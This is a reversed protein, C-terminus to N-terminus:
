ARSHAYWHSSKFHKSKDLSKRLASFRLVPLRDQMARVREEFQAFKKDGLHDAALCYLVSALTMDPTPIRSPIWEHNSRHPPRPAHDVGFTGLDHAILSDMLQAHFLPHCSQGAEEFDFHLCRIARLKRKSLVLYNLYVTSKTLSWSQRELSEVARIVVDLRKGAPLKLCPCGKLYLSFDFTVKDRDSRVFCSKLPMFWLVQGDAEEVAGRFAELFSEYASAVKPPVALTSM